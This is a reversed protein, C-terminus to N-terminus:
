IIDEVHPEFRTKLTQFLLNEMDDVPKKKKFREKVISRLFEFDERNFNKFMTGFTLYNQSNGDARIIKFYSKKREKYIKYDVITPSKSSLPTAQIAVDDDDEPIIEICRKLEGAQTKKLSEEVNETDIDVFTNVRKYVKEFIKKIDDFSKRKFNNQKFGEMNRMYTCMLSKQRAKTPPNNRIEEARNAAFYKRRSEILEALLKSREKFSLQEREQAQIQKALQRDADIIAEEDLAIQDKKKLPKEPEIMKAKGKDKLSSVTPIHAQVQKHFVIGKARPTTITTSIVKRKAAKIAILTKVLTLEDDVDATTATIPAASVEVSATTVVEGASTVPDATSVEKEVLQERVDIFVENGELDDVGFMDADHMRRQSEDALAIKADLDIDEISRGQKSADKVKPEFEIKSEDDFNWDEIISPSFNNKKVPKTEVTSHVGKNKVDVSEVKSEVTKVASSTVNSVVNAYESKVQEDIFMLDPNPPIYNGSYPPPVAHYGKDSRSKVNEQNELMESSKVFSEKAPSAAKYGLRTKVKDSVQSELTKNVILVCLTISLLYLHPSAKLLPPPKNCQENIHDKFRPHSQVMQYTVEENGNHITIMGEFRKAIIRVERLPESFIVDGMGTMCSFKLNLACDIHIKKDHDCDSPYEFIKSVMRADNRARFEEVVEGEEITPMSDDVQDSRLEVLVNEVIEKPRKVIRDALEVILKTPILDGLGLITYTSYPMVSISAGLDALAKYCM